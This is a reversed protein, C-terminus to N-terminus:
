EERISAPDSEVVTVDFPAADERVEKLIDDLSPTRRGVYLKIASASRNLGVANIGAKGLYKRSVLAKRQELVEESM